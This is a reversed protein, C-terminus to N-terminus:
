IINGPNMKEFIYFDSFSTENPKNLDYPYKNPIINLLKWNPQNKEVWDTFKRHKVHICHEENKNSAYIIVYKSASNFLRNMYTEFVNNEVLHFIVDLSLTLEAKEGTYETMNKFKYDKHNRFKRKCYDLITDSVDFGTYNKVNFLELQNGDGCGFEIISNIYHEKVFNNIVDAKFEALLGYSGAGSNGQNKYRNEWYKASDFNINTVIFDLGSDLDTDSVYFDNVSFEKKYDIDTKINKRIGKFDTRKDAVRDYEIDLIEQKSTVSLIKFNDFVKSIERQLTKSDYERLHEENWPKQKPALRHTRSPTSIIFVGDDKLVRKIEKLYLKVDKVHEIVQLSVVADFFNDPYNLKKGPYSKFTCNDLKYIAKAKKIADESIDIAEVYKFHKALYSTGYGDGCGIELVSSNRNIQKTVYDYAFKHDLFLIYNYINDNYLEFVYHYDRLKDKIEPYTELVNKLQLDNGGKMNVHYLTHETTLGLDRKPNTYIIENIPHKLVRIKTNNLVAMAWFWIDDANPALWMFTKQEFVDPHLSKPPYLIGGCGVAVNIFDATNDNISREWSMYSKINRGEFTIKHANHCYIYSSDDLYAKYLKELWNAPYFIDDDATVIVDDPYEKLAPILKKYSKINKGCWKIELGFKQLHLVKKPIDKEKNPFEEESLWLILKDPKITQTLLSYLCYHIDYMREPYSTLSVILKQNRPTETVGKQSLLEIENEIKATNIGGSIVKNIKNLQKQLFNLKSELFKYDESLKKYKNEFKFKIGLITIIKKYHFNKISFLNSLFNGTRNSMTLSNYKFSLNVLPIIKSSKITRSLESIISYYNQVAVVIYDVSYESLKSFPIIPIGMIDKGEDTISFKKDCIGVINFSSLDYEEQITKFLLGCGYIIIKKDGIIQQLNEIQYHFMNDQLFKNLNNM